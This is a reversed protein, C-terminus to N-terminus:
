HLGQVVTPACESWPQSELEPRPIVQHEVAGRCGAELAAAVVRNGQLRREVLLRDSAELHADLGGQEIALNADRGRGEVVVVVIELHGDEVRVARLHLVRRVGADLTEIEFERHPRRGTEGEVQAELQQVVLERVVFRDIRHRKGRERFLQESAPQDVGQRDQGAAPAFTPSKRECRPIEGAVRQRPRRVEGGGGRELVGEVQTVGAVQERAALVLVRVVHGEVREAM